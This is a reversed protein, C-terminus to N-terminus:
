SKKKKASKKAAPPIRARLDHKERDIKMRAEIVDVQHFQELQAHLQGMREHMRRIQEHMAEIRKLLGAPTGAEAIQEPTPETQIITFFSDQLRHVIESNM